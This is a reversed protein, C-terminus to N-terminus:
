NIISELKSILTTRKDGSKEADLAKQAKTTDEGVWGLVDKISGEPVETEATQPAEVPTEVVPQNFSDVVPVAVPAVPKAEEVAPGSEPAAYPDTDSM